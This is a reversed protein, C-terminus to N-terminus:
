SMQLVRNLADLVARAAADVEGRRIVASGTLTLATRAARVEVVALMVDVGGCRVQDLGALTLTTAAAVVDEVAQITASGAAMRQGAGSVESATTGVHEVGEDDTVVVTVSADSASQTISVRTLAVRPPAAEGGATALPDDEALQVVSVVRHDISIDFRTYLLSQIDRVVQKPARDEVVLAHLEDIPREFGPVLRVAVMGSLAALAREVQERHSPDHLDVPVHMLRPQATDHM